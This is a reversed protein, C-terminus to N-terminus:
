FVDSNGMTYYWGRPDALDVSTETFPRVGLYTVPAGPVFGIRELELHLPGALPLWLNVARADPSAALVGGLLARLTSADEDEVLLDVIDLDDGIRKSIAYGTAALLDHLREDPTWTAGRSTSRM